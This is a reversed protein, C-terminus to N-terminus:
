HPGLKPHNLPGQYQLLSAHTITTCKFTKPGGNHDSQLCSHEYICAHKIYLHKKHYNPHCLGNYTIASTAHNSITSVIKM